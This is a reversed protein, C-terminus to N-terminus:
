GPGLYKDVQNSSMGYSISTVLPPDTANGMAYAWKLIDDIEITGNAKISWFTTPAGPAM